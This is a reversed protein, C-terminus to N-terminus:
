SEAFAYLMSAAVILGLGFFLYLPDDGFMSFPTVMFLIGFALLTLSLAKRSGLPIVGLVSLAFLVVLAHGVHYDLLFSDVLQLPVYM